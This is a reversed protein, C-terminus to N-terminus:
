EVYEGITISDGDHRDLGTTEIEFLALCMLADDSLGAEAESTL